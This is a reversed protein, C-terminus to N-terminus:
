TQKKTQKKQKRKNTKQKKKNRKTLKKKNRKTLKKKNRKTLKNKNRKLKTIGGAMTNRATDTINSLLFDFDIVGREETLGTKEMVIDTGEWNPCIEPNQIINKIFGLSEYKPKLINVNRPENEIYLKINTKQLNQVVLQEMFYFLAKLPNGSNGSSSVRCVDNIWVDSEDMNQSTPSIDSDSDSSANCWNYFQLTGSAVNDSNVPNVKIFASVDQNDLYDKIADEDVELCHKGKFMRNGFYNVIENYEIQTNKIPLLYLTYEYKTSDLFFTGEFKSKLSANIFTLAVM